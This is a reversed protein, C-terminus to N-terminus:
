APQPILRRPSNRRESAQSSIRLLKRLRIRAWFVFAINKLILLLLVPVVIPIKGYATTIVSEGHELNTWAWSALGLLALPIIQVLGVAKIVTLGAHRGLLGCYMGVWCLAVVEIALNVPVLFIPVANWLQHYHENLFDSVVSIGSPLAVLLVVLLPVKVAKRLVRWQGSLVNRSGVVSTLLLELDQQRKADLFFRAGAWAVLGGSFLGIVLGGFSLLAWGDGMPSDSGAFSGLAGFQGLFNLAIALWLLGEVSGLRSVRWGIPDADWPRPTTLWSARSPIGEAIVAEGSGTELEVFSDEADLERVQKHPEDQWNRSLTVAARYLFLWGVGHMVVLWALFLPWGYPMGSLTIWGGLGFLRAIAAGAAGFCNGGIVELGLSLAAILGITMAVANRRERFITSMWVGAALSVFLANLLGLATIVAQAFRVGGLLVPFMLAPLAGILVLFSNLGCSIMKGHVIQAPSLDTLLLLGLTGERRERSITDASLVGMFLVAVFLLISMNSLLISGTLRGVAM